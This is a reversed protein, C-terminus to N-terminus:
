PADRRNTFKKWGENLNASFVLMTRLHALAVMWRLRRVRPKQPGFREGVGGLGLQAINLDREIWQFQKLFHSGRLAM